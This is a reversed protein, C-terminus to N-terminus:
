DLRLEGELPIASPLPVWGHKAIVENSEVPEHGAALSHTCHYVKGDYLARNTSGGHAVVLAVVHPSRAIGIAAWRANFDDQLRMRKDSDEAGDYLTIHDCVVVPLTPPIQALLRARCSASLKFIAYM